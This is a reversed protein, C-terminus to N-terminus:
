DYHYYSANKGPYIDKHETRHKLYKRCEQMRKTYSLKGEGAPDKTLHALLAPDFASAAFMGCIPALGINGVEQV